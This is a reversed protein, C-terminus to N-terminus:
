QYISLPKNESVFRHKFGPNLREENWLFAYAKKRFLPRAKTTLLSSLRTFM